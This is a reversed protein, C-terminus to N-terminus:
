PRKKELDERGEEEKRGTLGTNHLRKRIGRGAFQARFETNELPKKKRGLFVAMKLRNKEAHIRASHSSRKM